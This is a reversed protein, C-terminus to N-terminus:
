NTAQKNMKKRQLSHACVSKISFNMAEYVLVACATMLLWIIIFHM